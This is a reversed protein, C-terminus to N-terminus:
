PDGSSVNPEILFLPKDCSTQIGIFSRVQHGCFLELFELDPTMKIHPMTFMLEILIFLVTPARIMILGKQLNILRQGQVTQKGQQVAITCEKVVKATREKAEQALTKKTKKKLPERRTGDKKGV